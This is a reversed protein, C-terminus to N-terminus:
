PRDVDTLPMDAQMVDRLSATRDIATLRGDALRLIGDAAAAYEPDHTILLISPRDPKSILARMIHRASIADLHNTPEDLILLRPHRVLARAIALRQRQGQSLRVGDGGIRTQLGAPLDDIFDNVRTTACADHIDGPTAGVAGYTLNDAITGDFFWTDQLVVGIQQRWAGLDLADLNVDGVRITGEAPRTLGLIQRILTTKGAGNPGTLALMEGPHLTFSVGSFLPTRGFRCAVNDIVLPAHDPPAVGGPVSEAAASLLALVRDWARWGEQAQPVMQGLTNLPGRLLAITSTVALMVPISMVGHQVRLGAVLLLVGFVIVAASRGLGVSLAWIRTTATTADGAARAEEARATSAVPEAGHTRTVLFGALMSWAGRSFAGFAQHSADVRSLVQQRTIREVGAVVVAAAMAGLGFALDTLALTASLGLVVLISPLIHGALVGLMADIRETDHVYVDHVYPSRPEVLDVPLKAIAGSLQARLRETAPKTLGAGALKVGAGLWEGLLLLSVLGAIALALDAATGRTAAEFARQVLLPAPAVLLAQGAAAAAVVGLSWPRIGTAALLRRARQLQGSGTM